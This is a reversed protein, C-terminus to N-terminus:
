IQVYRIAGRNPQMLESLTLNPPKLPADDAPGCYTAFFLHRKPHLLVYERVEKHVMELKLLDRDHDEIRLTRIKPCNLLLNAVLMSCGIFNFSVNRLKTLKNLHRGFETLMRLPLDGKHIFTLALNELQPVLNLFDELGRELKIRSVELTKLGSNTELLVKKLDSITHYNFPPPFFHLGELNNRPFVFRERKIVKREYTVKLTRLTPFTAISELFFIIPFDTEFHELSLSQITVIADQTLNLWDSNCLPLLCAQLMKPEPLAPKHFFDGLRLGKLNPCLDILEKFNSEDGWPLSELDLCKLNKDKLLQTAMAFSSESDITLVLHELHPFPGCMGFPVALFRINPCKSPLVRQIAEELLVDNGLTYSNLGPKHHGHGCFTFSFPDYQHVSTHNLGMNARKRTYVFCQWRKLVGDIHKCLWTNTREFKVMEVFSLYKLVDFLCDENLELLAFPVLPKSLAM